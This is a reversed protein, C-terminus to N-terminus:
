EEKRGERKGKKRGEKEEKWGVGEVGKRGTVTRVEVLGQVTQSM